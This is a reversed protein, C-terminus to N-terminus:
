NIFSLFAGAMGLLRFEIGPISIISLSFQSVCNTSQAGHWLM